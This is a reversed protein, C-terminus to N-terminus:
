QLLEKRVDVVRLMFAILGTVLAVLIVANAAAAPYDLSRVQNFIASVVSARQGGSMVSVVFFDGMVLAVIFISGLAIGSRTLPIIIEILIQWSSAGADRAATLVARDIRGMANFIPVIMFLTYLHVYALIVSFDSYLLADIPADTIGVGQLSRNIVGERGLIPIWSIMRIILSTLFPITCVLFLFIQTQIKKVFFALFYSVWFGLVLSIAWVILTYKISSMYLSYTNPSRFVDRYNDFTFEYIISGVDYQCFSVFLIILMPIGFFFALTLAMPGVQLWSMLSPSLKM